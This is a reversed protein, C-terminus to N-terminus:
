AWSHDEFTGFFFSFVYKYVNNDLFQSVFIRNALVEVKKLSYGFSIEKFFFYPSGQSIPIGRVLNTLCFKYVSSYGQNVKSLFLDASTMTCTDLLEKSIWLDFIIACNFKLLMITKHFNQFQNWFILHYWLSRKM